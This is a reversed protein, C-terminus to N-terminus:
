LPRHECPLLPYTDLCALYALLFQGPHRRHQLALRPYTPSHQCFESNEELERLWFDRINYDGRFDSLITMTKYDGDGRSWSVGQSMNTSILIYVVGEKDGM